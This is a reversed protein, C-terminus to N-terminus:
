ANAIEAALEDDSLNFINVGYQALRELLNRVPVAALAAAQGASLKGEGYLHAAVMLRVDADSTELHDPLELTITRM